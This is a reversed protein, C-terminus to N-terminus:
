ILLTVLAFSWSSGNALSPSIRNLEGRLELSISSTSTLSSISIVNTLLNRGVQFLSLVRRDRITNAQLKRAVNLREGVIGAIVCAFAALTGIILLTELRRTNRSRAYDFAWGYRHSKTDRFAEEIKMRSAYLAVIETPSHQWLNTALLWPEAAKTRQYDSKRRGFSVPKAGLVARVQFDDGVDVVHSGLERAFSTAQAFWRRIPIRTPGLRLHSGRVRIVFGWGMGDVARYFARSFGADAVVIPRARTPLITQLKDLFREQVRRNGYRSKPHVEFLIPIARGSIPVAAVLAWQENGVGTWDVLVVPRAVGRVLYMALARLITLREAWLRHNGVLRDARKISHKPMTASCYSRGLGTVTLRGGRVLSEVAAVLAQLRAAHISRCAEIVRRLIRAVRM